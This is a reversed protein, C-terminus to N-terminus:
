WGRIYSEDIFDENNYNDKDDIVKIILSAYQDLDLYIDVTYIGPDDIVESFGFSSEDIMLDDLNKECRKYENFEFIIKDETEVKNILYKVTNSNVGYQDTKIDFYFKIGTEFVEEEMFDKSDMTYVNMRRQNIVNSQAYITTTVLFLLLLIMLIIKKM